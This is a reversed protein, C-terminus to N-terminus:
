RKGARRIIGCKPNIDSAKLKGGTLAEIQMARLPPIPRGGKFWECVTPATVGLARRLGAQSGFHKLIAQNVTQPIPTM